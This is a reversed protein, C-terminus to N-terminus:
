ALKKAKDILEEVEGALRWYGGMPWADWAGCSIVCFISKM